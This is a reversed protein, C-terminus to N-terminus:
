ATAAVQGPSPALRDVVAVLADHVAAVAPRAASATRYAIQITRSFPRDIDVVRVGAPLGLLGLDPVLAVGAGAAVLRMMTPFDDIQHAIDPEFGASRCAVVVSSGCSTATSSAIFRRDAFDILSATTVGVADGSPVVLHFVDDLLSTSSVGAPQSMPAHAYDLTFAVDVTGAAVAELAPEVDLQRTRVQLEPHQDGLQELLPVLLTVAVSEYVSLEVTGRVEGAVQEMAARAAELSALLDGAHRVLERGADTLRVNRGVRELVAVGTSRELGGLQQSVASPTYGLSSAAAVITGRIAVERLMRLQQISMDVTADEMFRHKV